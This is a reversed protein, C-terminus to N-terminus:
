HGTFAPLVERVPLDLSEMIQTRPMAPQDIKLGIETM